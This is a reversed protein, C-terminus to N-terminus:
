RNCDKCGPNSPNGITVGSPTPSGAMPPMATPAMAGAPPAVSTGYAMPAGYTPQVSMPAYVGARNPAFHCMGWNDCKWQEISRCMGCGGLMPVALILGIRAIRRAMQAGSCSFASVQNMRSYPESKLPKLLDLLNRTSNVWPSAIVQGQLCCSGWLRERRGGV